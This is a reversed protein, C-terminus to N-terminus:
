PWVQGPFPFRQRLTRHMVAAPSNPANSTINVTGTLSGTTTPAFV